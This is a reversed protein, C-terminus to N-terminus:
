HTCVVYLKMIFYSFKEWYKNEQAIPFFGYPSLFNSYAMTFSGDTNSGSFNSQIPLQLTGITHMFVPCIWFCAGYVLLVFCFDICLISVYVTFPLHPFCLFKLYCCRFSLWVFLVLPNSFFVSCVDGDCDLMWVSVSISCSWDVSWFLYIVLALSLFISSSNNSFLLNNGRVFSCFQWDDFIRNVFM